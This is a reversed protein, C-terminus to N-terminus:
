ETASRIYDKIRERDECNMRTFKFGMGISEQRLTRKTM